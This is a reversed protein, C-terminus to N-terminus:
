VKRKRLKNLDEQSIDMTEIFSEVEMEPEKIEAVKVSRNKTLLSDELKRRLAANEIELRSAKSAQGQPSNIRIWQAATDRVEYGPQDRLQDCELDSMEAVQQIVHVGLM